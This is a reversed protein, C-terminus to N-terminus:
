YLALKFVFSQKRLRVVALFSVNRCTVKRKFPQPELNKSNKRKKGRREPQLSEDLQEQTQLTLTSNEGPVITTKFCDLRMTLSVCAILTVTECVLLLFCSFQKSINVQHTKNPDSVIPPFNLKTEMATRLLTLLRKWLIFEKPLFKSLYAGPKEEEKSSEEDSDSSVFRLQIFSVYTNYIWSSHLSIHSM